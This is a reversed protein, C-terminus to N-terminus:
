DEKRKLNFWIGSDLIEVSLIVWGRHLGHEEQVHSIKLLAFIINRDSCEERKIWM